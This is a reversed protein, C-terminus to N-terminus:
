VGKLDLDFHCAAKHGNGFDQMEPYKEKCIDKAYPCRPHFYCGSPLDSADAVMGPMVANEDTKSFTKPILSILGEAYPHKPNTFIEESDGIEVIRGVYMVALTDSMYKVVSLDHAIFIFTLNLTKQLEKLLNMIQAQVSVDLASVPEDAVVLQPKTVLSRAIGVRQRQGGSFAHPYRNMFDSSLGAKVLIDSILNKYEMNQKMGLARLPEGIIHEITMRPDLSAYPDQFIMQIKERLPKMEKSSLKNIEYDSEDQEDHFVISGSTPEMLKVIMRGATTKGCGSEGVLGFTTGRYVEFSVGDVAKVVGETNDFFGGQMPFHKCLDKVVLMPKNNNKTM